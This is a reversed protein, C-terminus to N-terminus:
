RGLWAAANLLFQLDDSLSADERGMRKRGILWGLIWGGDAVLRGHQEARGDLALIIPNESASYVPEAESDPAVRLYGYLDDLYLSHVQSLLPHDGEVLKPGAYSVVNGGFGIGFPSLLENADEAWAGTPAVSELSVWVGGGNLYFSYLLQADSPSVELRDTYDAELIWVQEFESLAQETLHPLSRRDNVQFEIGFGECASKLAKLDSPQRYFGHSDAGNSLVYFLARQHRYDLARQLAAQYDSGAAVAEVRSRGASAELGRREEENMGLGLFRIRLQPHTTLARGVAQKLDGGCNDEGDIALALLSPGTAPLLRAAETLAQAIPAKGIAQARSLRRSAQGTRDAGEEPSPPPADPRRLVAVDDCDDARSHGFAFLGLNQTKPDSILGLVASRLREVRPQGGSDAIMSSSFDLVLVTPVATELAALLALPLTWM